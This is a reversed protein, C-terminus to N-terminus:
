TSPQQHSVLYFRNVDVLFRRGPQQDDDLTVVGFQGEMTGWSTRLPCYSAYEFREGPRLVPQQGILGEGQVVEEEGHADIIRWRRDIVQISPAEAPAAYEIVIAYAFVYMPRTPDSRQPLYQPRVRIRITSDFESAPVQTRAESGHTGPEVQGTLGMDYLEM